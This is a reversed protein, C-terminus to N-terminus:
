SLAYIDGLRSLGFFDGYVDFPIVIILLCFTM